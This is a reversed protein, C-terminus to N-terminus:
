PPGPPPPQRGASSARPWRWDSGRRRPAAREQRTLSDSGPGQRQLKPKCACSARSCSIIRLALTALAAPWDPPRLQCGAARALQPCDAASMRVVAPEASTSGAQSSLLRQVSLLCGWHLSRQAGVSHNLCRPLWRSGCDAVALGPLIHLGEVPWTLGTAARQSAGARSAACEHLDTLSCVHDQARWPPGPAGRGRM